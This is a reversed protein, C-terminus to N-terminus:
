IAISKWCTRTSREMSVFSKQGRNARLDMRFMGGNRKSIHMVPISDRYPVIIGRQFLVGGTDDMFKDVSALNKTADPCVMITELVVDVSKKGARNRLKGRSTGLGAIRHKVGGLTQVYRVVPIFNELGEKDLHAQHM